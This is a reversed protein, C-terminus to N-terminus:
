LTLNYNVSMYQVIFKNNVSTGYKCKKSEIYKENKPVIYKQKKKKTLV